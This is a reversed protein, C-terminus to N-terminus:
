NERQEDIETPKRETQERESKNNNYIWRIAKKKKWKINAANCNQLPLMIWIFALSLCMNKLSNFPHTLTNGMQIICMWMILSINLIFSSSFPCVMQILDWSNTMILLLDRTFLFFRIFCSSVNWLWHHSHRQWHQQSMVFEFPNGRLLYHTGTIIKIKNWQQAVTRLGSLAFM